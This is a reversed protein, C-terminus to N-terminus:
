DQKMTGDVGVVINNLPMDNKGSRHLAQRVATAIGACCPVEMRAVTVSRIDNDAFVATLKEVYVDLDDLKPCGVAVTKGSLLRRHFDGMAYAVCDASVLVDADRWIEGRPPLLSLQVPWHGLSSRSADGAAPQPPSGPDIARAATGPCGCPLAPSRSEAEKGDLPVGGTREAAAAPEFDDAPREEITIADKPCAGICDGLGDCLNDAILRATGDVIQIAGEACQPVCLGCGDCRDPDIRVIKRMTKVTM